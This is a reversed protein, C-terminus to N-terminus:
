PIGVAHVVNGAIAYGDDMGHITIEKALSKLFGAFAKLASDAGAMIDKKGYWSDRSGVLALITSVGIDIGMYKGMEPNHEMLKKTALVDLALLGARQLNSLKKRPEQKPSMSAESHSYHRAGSSLKIAIREEDSLPKYMNEELYSVATQPSLTQPNRDQSFAPASSGLLGALTLGVAFKKFYTKASGM